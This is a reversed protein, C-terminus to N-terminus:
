RKAVGQVPKVDVGLEHFVFAFVDARQAIRESYAMDVGHGSSGSTRLLIPNKSANAAQLRAVMKRSQMPDVRPDNAGTLFLLAPYATGDKVHHYPSYAYLAAFQEANKVTGYETTNFSGNTSLEVRLMDYIGVHSVVTAFLNAHQTLEAGMLLGGNSGGELALRGPRTYKQDVLFQACAAFDDFVNQKHTLMGAQHWDEGFEGGGRTSAIAAIGGQEIWARRAESFGPTQSIGFGGYGQLLTPNDGNLATGERMLITLPVKTGDKSVVTARVVRTDSFDAPSTESMATKAVNQTAADYRYWGFPTVYSVEGFLLDDQGIRHLEGVTTVPPVSVEGLAKGDADFVRVRSPGGLMDRTYLRTAMPLVQQVVADSMPVVVTAKALNPEALPVRLVQGRSANHISRLYLTNGPGFEAQKVGDQFDAVRVWTGSPGLLWFAFEGGDGNAVTAVIYAGDDRREFNTEAIRPWEKGISYTDKEEPTGLTHHYVQQYFDLDAPPRETGRPYRTYYFGTGDKDWALGGGATGEQVRAISEYVTKGTAVDYVHLTGDESGGVSLSV